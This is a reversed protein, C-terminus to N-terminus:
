ARAGSIRCIMLYRCHGALGIIASPFIQDTTEVEKRTGINGEGTIWRVVGTPLMAYKWQGIPCVREAQEELM